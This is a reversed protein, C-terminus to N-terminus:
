PSGPLSSGTSFASLTTPFSSFRDRDPVRALAEADFRVSLSLLRVATGFFTEGDRRNELRSEYLRRLRRQGGFQEVTRILARRLNSQEPTAYSFVGEARTSRGAAPQPQGGNAAADSHFSPM